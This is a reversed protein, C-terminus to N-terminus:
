NSVTHNAAASEIAASAVKGALGPLAARAIKSVAGTAGGRTELIIEEWAAVTDATLTPRRKFAAVGGLQLSLEGKQNTSITANMFHGGVVRGYGLM